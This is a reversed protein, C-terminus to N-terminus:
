QMMRRAAAVVTSLARQKHRIERLRRALDPNAIDARRKQAEEIVEPKVLLKLPDTEIARIVLQNETDIANHYLREVEEHPKTRLVSRVEMLRLFDLTAENGKIEVPPRYLTNEIEAAQQGFRMAAIIEAMRQTTQVVAQQLRAQADATMEGGSALSQRSAAFRSMLELLDRIPQEVSAIFDPQFGDNRLAAVAAAAARRVDDITGAAPSDTAANM